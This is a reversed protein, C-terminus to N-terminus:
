PGATVQDRISDPPIDMLVVLRQVVQSFVPAAVESGWISASPKEIWVYVLFQPDDVPGWGVFSANTQNPNYGYTKPIQATGTKGAIRYGEVLSLSAENELSITLMETLTRATQASIPSGVVQPATVHRVRGNQVMTKLLHPYVMQGENAIASAAMVMQIPTVAVGQGFANTALDVPYWDSDGPLKLRGTEEGTLDIGTAHGLGFSQMYRYFLESKLNTAVWALCTNLSHQLCGTMDQVGWAGGDWNRITAGGYIFYGPDPFTTGPTVSGADLAAAMTLIKFVSGPEYAQSIARNFPIEGPFVEAYNWYENLNLRPTTVMALIEGSQPQMVIITGSEAGYTLLAADLIEEIAAQVERDITLVLTAGPPIEPLDLADNPNSSIWVEVPSGALISNYKEEIGYYGRMESTVFGILNSGMSSEPYSRQLHPNFTLGALSPRNQDRLNGGDEEFKGALTTLEAISAAPIYDTLRMYVQYEPPETIATYVVDYDLGLHVSLALAITEPNEVDRLEVGVEYVTENGALLHGNRDYIEGRPPYLIRDAGQFPQTNELIPPAQDKGQIRIMQFPIVLGISLMLVQITRYRWLNEHNM